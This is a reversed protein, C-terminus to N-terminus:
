DPPRSADGGAPKADPKKPLVAKVGDGLKEMLSKPDPKDIGSGAHDDPKSAM